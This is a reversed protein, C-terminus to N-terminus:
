KGGFMSKLLNALAEVIRAGLCGSGPEGVEFPGDFRAKSEVLAARVDAVTAGSANLGDGAYYSQGARVWRASGQMDHPVPFSAWEQALSVMMADLSKRGSLYEGLGRKRLLYAGAADQCSKDFRESPLVAGADVIESLTKRIIQYFGAASSKAGQEVVKKQWAQVEAVTMATLDRPRLAKPVFGSVIGYDGRSEARGILALLPAIQKATFKM